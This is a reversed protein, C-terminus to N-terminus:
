GWDISEKWWKPFLSSARNYFSRFSGDLIYTIGFDNINRVIRGSGQLFTQAVVNDYWRPDSDKRQSVWPDGLYPYPVKPFIAFRALDDALDVGETMSPSVLVTPRPSSAHEALVDSQSDGPKQIIMRSRHRSIDEIMSGLKFSHCHIIGKYNAARDLIRDIQDIVQPFASNINGKNLAIQGRYRIPRRRPDFPSPLSLSAYADGWGLWGAMIHPDTLTASTVLIRKNLPKIVRDFIGDVYLPRWVVKAKLSRTEDSASMVWISLDEEDTDPDFADDMMFMMKSALHELRSHESIEAATVSEPRSTIQADLQSVRARIAKYMDVALQESDWFTDPLYFPVNLAECDSSTIEVQAADILSRELNHGEDMILWKFRSLDIDAVSLTSFLWAYNTIGVGAQFMKSCAISYPCGGHKKASCLRKGFGCTSVMGGTRTRMENCPYNNAGKVVPIHDWDRSYQDQLLKQPTLIIGGHSQAVSVCVPSKGVGTPADIMLYPVGANHNIFDLMEKQQPRQDFSGCMWSIPAEEPAPHEPASQVADM